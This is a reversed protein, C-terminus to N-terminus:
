IFHNVVVSELRSTNIRIQNLLCVSVLHLEAHLFESGDKLLDNQEVFSCLEVKHGM